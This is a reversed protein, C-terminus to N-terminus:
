DRLAQYNSNNSNVGGGSGGDNRANADNANGHISSIHAKPTYVTIFLARQYKM